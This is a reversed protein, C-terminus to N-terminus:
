RVSLFIERAVIEGDRVVMVSSGVIGARQLEDRYGTVVAPWGAPAQAFSVIPDRVILALLLALGASTLRRM